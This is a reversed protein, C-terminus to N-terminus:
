LLDQPKIIAGEEATENLESDFLSRYGKAIPPESNSSGPATRKKAAAAGEDARKQPAAKAAKARAKGEDLTLNKAPSSAPAAKAESSISDDVPANQLPGDQAPTPDKTSGTTDEESESGTIM